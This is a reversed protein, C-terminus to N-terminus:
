RANSFYLRGTMGAEIGDGALQDNSLRYCPVLRSAPRTPSSAINRPKGAIGCCSPAIAVIVFSSTYNMLPACVTM